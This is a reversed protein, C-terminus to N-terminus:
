AFFEDYVDMVSKDELHLFHGIDKIITLKSDKIENQLMYVDDLNSVEDKDGYVILSTASIASLNVIDVLKKKLVFSSQYYFAELHRPDIKFFQQEIKNKLTDSISEGFGSVLLNGIKNAEKDKYLDIGMTVIDNLKENAKVACSGLILKDVKRPNNAAYAAAMIAGWSAGYVYLSDYHTVQNMVQKVCEMQEEFSIHFPESIIEGAGQHPFDFIVVRYKKSFRTIFPRWIGMTMQAGNICLLCTKGSGYVRYPIIFRKYEITNKTIDM